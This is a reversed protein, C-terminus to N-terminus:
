EGRGDVYIQQWIELVILAWLFLSHDQRGSRHAEILSEVAEPRFYGRQSVREASLLAGMWGFLEGRLWTSLPLNLGRKPYKLVESPLLSTVAERFLGKTRGGRLKWSLPIGGAVQILQQDVFPVRVELSQAMSMRDGYALQNFPLYSQVDATMLKESPPLGNGGRLLSRIFGLPDEIGLSDRFAPTYVEERSKRNLVELFHLYCDEFTLMGGELFRRIRRAKLSGELSNYRLSGACYVAFRRLIEPLHRYRQYLLMGPYRPYGAFMEDGGTGALAVKVYRRTEGSLLYLLLATPNAFPQDFHGIVRPLLQVIDPTVRFEHHEARFFSAIRSAPELEDWSKEGHGFGLSFTQVPEKTHRAILALISASDMGGSLFLGLPVDSVLMSRVSDELVVRIEEKAEEPNAYRGVQPEFDWYRSIRVDGEECVLRHAPPLSRISRFITRPEPIYLLTLYPDIAERDIERSVRPDSLISKIESAFLLSGNVRAYYLPKIGFHDRALFLRVSASPRQDYIAFAFMGRLHLPLDEGWEEYGHVLVETDSRTAFAHGKKELDRRLERYNYIEGNFAVWVTKTENPVPQRGTQLDIISLRRVGLGAQEDQYYGEEDPGRHMLLRTAQVLDHETRRFLSLNYYGCIGCM